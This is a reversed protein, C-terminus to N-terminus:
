KKAVAEALRGAKAMKVLSDLAQLAKSHTEDDLVLAEFEDEDLLLYEGDPYALLDLALDIYTIKGPSFSAPTTVNCYWAKLRDDDRDHIEFINYWRDTFYREIFRDNEKITIGHFLMDERNFLAEILRTNENHSLIKGQYRWIEERKPNLKIVIVKNPNAKM